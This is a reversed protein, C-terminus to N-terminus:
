SKSRGLLIGALVGVGVAIGISVIPHDSVQQKMSKMAVAVQQDAHEVHQKVSEKAKTLKQRAADVAHGADARLESAGDRAAHVADQALVGVDHKVVSAQHALGDLDQKFSTADSTSTRSM